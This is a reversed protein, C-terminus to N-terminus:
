VQSHRDPRSTGIRVFDVCILHDNRGITFYPESRVSVAGKQNRTPFADFWPQRRHQLQHASLQTSGSSSETYEGINRIM